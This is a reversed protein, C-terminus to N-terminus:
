WDVGPLAVASAVHLAQSGPEKEFVGLALMHVGHVMLKVFTMPEVAQVGHLSQGLPCITDAIGVLVVSRPQMAHGSPVVLVPGFAVIHM